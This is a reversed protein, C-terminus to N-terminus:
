QDRPIVDGTIGRAREVENRGGGERGSSRERHSAYAIVSKMAPLHAPDIGCFDIIQRLPVESGGVLREYNVEIWTVNPARNLLARTEELHRALESLVADGDEAEASGVLRARMRNQSAMTTRLDRRMWLVRYRHRRPLFQLLPSIVKVARGAAAGILQPDRPLNKIPAWEYYGQPNSEDAPRVDDIMLPVGAAALLQMALSTGSRPLGSVILLEAPPFPQRPICEDTVPTRDALRRSARLARAAELEARLRKRGVAISEHDLARHLLLARHKAVLEGAGAEGKLLQILYRRAAHFRPNLRLANEFARIAGRREGRHALAIGYCYHCYFHHFLLSIGELALEAAEEYRGQRSRCFSLGGLAGPNETELALSRLFIAEAKAVERLHLYTTGAFNLTQVSGNAAQEVARLAALAAPRHGRRWELEARLQFAASLTTTEELLRIVEEGEDLLGLRLLTTALSVAVDDREPTAEHIEDLIPLADPLCGGELLSLARFYQEVIRQDPPPAASSAAGDSLYGLDILRQLFDRSSLGHPNETVRAFNGEVTEWSPITTIDPRELFAETLVRGEMDAGVPLNFLTLITPAIDLLSAGHILQDQRLGPGNLVFVGQRRHWLTIAMPVKPLQSPRTERSHFGHDSLVCVTANSGALDILRGLMADHLRYIGEIVAGYIEGDIRRVGPMLPAVYRMFHHAVADIAEYYVAGFDWDIQELGYTFAAHVGFNEALLLALRALRSDRDQDVEDARPVLLRIVSEDIEEPAVRLDRLTEWHTAPHVSSALSALSADSAAPRLVAFENSITLGDIPEAPHSAFWNCVVSRRREHHLINWLAHCRRHHSGVSEVRGSSPDTATFSYIGHSQARKGTALSTWLLPSIMPDLSALRGSVGTEILRQLVPMKGADVLPQIIRWDASDWGVLLIRRAPASPRRAVRM